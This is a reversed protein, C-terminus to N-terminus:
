PGPAGSERTDCNSHIDECRDMESGSTMMEFRAEINKARDIRLRCTTDIGECDGRWGIFRHEKDPHAVLTIEEGQDIISRCYAGCNILNHTSTITGGQTVDVWVLHAPKFYGTLDHDHSMELHCDLHQGSCAGEWHDFRYGRSPSATLLAKTYQNFSMGCDRGCEISQPSTIIHGEGVATFHLYAQDIMLTHLVSYRMIYMASILFVISLNIRNAQINGAVIVFGVLFFQFTRFAVAEQNFNFWYLWISILISQTAIRWAVSKELMDRYILISIGAMTPPIIISLNAPKAINGLISASYGAKSLTEPIEFNLKALQLVWQTWSPNPYFEVMVLTIPLMLGIAVQYRKLSLWPAPLIFNALYAQTHTLGGVLNALLGSMWRRKMMFLFSSLFFMNAMSVRFATIDNQLYFVSTYTLLALLPETSLLYIIWLKLTLTLGSLWLVAYPTDKISKLLGLLSWWVYEYKGKEYSSSKQFIEGCELTPCIDKSYNYYGLDDLSIGLPRFSAFLILCTSFIIYLSVQYKRDQTKRILYLYVISGTLFLCYIIFALNLM